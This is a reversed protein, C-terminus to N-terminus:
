CPELLNFRKQMSSELFLRCIAKGIAVGLCSYPLEIPLPYKDITISLPIIKSKYHRLLKKENERSSLGQGTKLMDM